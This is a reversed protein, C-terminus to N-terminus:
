SFHLLFKGGKQGKFTGGMGQKWDEPKIKNVQPSIFKHEISLRSIDDFMQLTASLPNERYWRSMWFGKISNDTFILERAGIQVPKFSMAGYTVM